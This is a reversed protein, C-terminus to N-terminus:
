AVIYAVRVVFGTAAKQGVQAINIKGAFAQTAIEAQFDARVGKAGNFM